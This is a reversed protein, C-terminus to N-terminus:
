KTAALTNAWNIPPPPRYRRPPLPVRKALAAEIKPRQEAPIMNGLQDLRATMQRWWRYRYYHNQDEPYLNSGLYAVHRQRPVGNIRTNEVLVAYSQAADPRHLGKGKRDFRQQWRIYM